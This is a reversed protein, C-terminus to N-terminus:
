FMFCAYAIRAFLFVCLGKPPRGGLHVNPYYIPKIIEMWEGIPLHPEVEAFFRARSTIKSPEFDFLSLNTM